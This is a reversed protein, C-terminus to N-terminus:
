WNVSWNLDPSFGPFLLPISRHGSAQSPQVRQLAENTSVISLWSPDSSYGGQTKRGVNSKVSKIILSSRFLYRLGKELQAGHHNIPSPFLAAQASLVLVFFYKSLLQIHEHQLLFGNTTRLLLCSRVFFVPRYCCFNEWWPCFNFDPECDVSNVFVLLFCFPFGPFPQFTNKRWM